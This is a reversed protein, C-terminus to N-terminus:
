TSECVNACKRVDRVVTIRNGAMQTRKAVTCPAVFQGRLVDHWNGIEIPPPPSQELMQLAVVLVEM